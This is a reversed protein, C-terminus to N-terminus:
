CLVLNALNGDSVGMTHELGHPQISVASIATICIGGLPSIMTSESEIRAMLDFSLLLYMTCESRVSERLPCNYGVQDVEYLETLNVYKQSLPILAAYERENMGAM